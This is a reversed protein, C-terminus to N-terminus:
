EGQQRRWAEVLPRLGEDGPDPGAADQLWPEVVADRLENWLDPLPPPFAMAASLPIWGVLRPYYRPFIRRNVEIISSFGGSIGFTSLNKDRADSLLHDQTEPAFFWRLLTEAAANNASTETMAAFVVDEEVPITGQHSIWRFDLDWVRDSPSQFFRAATTFSFLIRGEEILRDPPDYLYRELFEQEAEPSGNALTSWERLRTLAEQLRDQNWTVAMAPARRFEAGYARAALYLFDPHWVPAFGMAIIRGGSVRNFGASIDRIEDFGLYVRDDSIAPHGAPFVIVPLDFSLPLLVQREDRRGLELLDQYMRDDPAIGIGFSALERLFGASEATPVGDAIIMDPQRDAAALASFPREHFEVEVRLDPNQAHFSEIYAAVSVQNTWLLASDGAPARCSALGGLIALALITVPLKPRM